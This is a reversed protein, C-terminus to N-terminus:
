IDDGFMNHASGGDSTWFDLLDLEEQETRYNPKSKSENSPTSRSEIQKVLSDALEEKCETCVQYSEFHFGTTVIKCTTKYCYTKQKPPNM